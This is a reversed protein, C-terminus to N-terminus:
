QSNIPLKDPNGLIKLLEQAVKNTRNFVGGNGEYDNINWKEYPKAFIGSIEQIADYTCPKRLNLGLNNVKEVFSTFNCPYNCYDVLVRYVGIWQTAYNLLYNGKEDVADMLKLLAKGIFEDTFPTAPSVNNEVNVQQNEVNNNETKQDGFNQIITGDGLNLQNVKCSINELLKLKEDLTM